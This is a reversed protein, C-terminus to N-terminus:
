KPAELPLTQTKYPRNRKNLITVSEIKDGKSLKDLVDLGATVKGFPIYTGNWAAVDKKLIMFQSRATDPRAVGKEDQELLMTLVGREHSKKNDATESRIRYDPGGSPDNTPSGTIVGEDIAEYFAMEQKTQPNPSFFGKEALEIFNSVTNPADAEFLEVTLEGKPTKITVTPPAFAPPKPLEPTPPTTPAPQALPTPPLNATTSPTATAPALSAVDPPLRDNTYINVKKITLRGGRSELRDILDEGKVIKGIPVHDTDWEPHAKSCLFFSSGVERGGGARKARGLLSLTGKEHTLKAVNQAPTTREAITVLGDERPSGGRIHSGKQVEFLSLWDYYGELALSAFLRAGDLQRDAFLEIWLTGPMNDIDISAFYRKGSTSSIPEIVSFVVEKENNRFLLRPPVGPLERSFSPDNYAAKVAAYDPLTAIDPFVLELNRFFADPKWGLRYRGAAPLDKYYDNLTFSGGATRRSALNVIPTEPRKAKLEDWTAQPTALAAIESTVVFGLPLLEPSFVKVADAGGNTLIADVEVTQSPSRLKEKVELGLKLSKAPLKPKIPTVKPLEAPPAVPAVAPIPTGPTTAALPKPSLDNPGPPTPPTPSKPQVSPKVGDPKGDGDHDHGSHDDGDHGPEATIGKRPPQNPTPGPQSQGQGQERREEVLILHWGYQTKVPQSMEGGKLDFAVESFEKVMKSRTFWGLAGGSRKTSNDKSHKRAAEMFAPRTSGKEVVENRVQDAEDQTAVLIHSAKVEEAARLDGQASFAACFAGLLVAGAVSRGYTTVSPM